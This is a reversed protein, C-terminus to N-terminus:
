IFSVEYPRSDSYVENPKKHFIFIRQQGFYTNSEDTEAIKLTLLLEVESARYLYASLNFTKYGEDLKWQPNFM